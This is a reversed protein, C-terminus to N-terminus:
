DAAQVELEEGLAQLPMVYGPTKKKPAKYAREGDFSAEMAGFQVKKNFAQLNYLKAYKNAGKSTADVEVVSVKTINGDYDLDQKYIVYM